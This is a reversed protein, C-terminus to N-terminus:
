MIPSYKMSNKDYAIGQDQEIILGSLNNSAPAPQMVVPSPPSAPPAAAVKVKPSRPPSAVAYSAAVRPSPPASSPRKPAGGRAGGWMVKKVKRVFPNKLFGYAALIVFAVVLVWAMDEQGESCFYQTGVVLAIVVAVELLIREGDIEADRQYQIYLYYSRIAISLVAIVVAVQSPSCMSHFQGMYEDVSSSLSSFLDPNGKANAARIQQALQAASSM